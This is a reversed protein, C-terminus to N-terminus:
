KVLKPSVDEKVVDMFLLYNAQEMISAFNVNAGVLAKGLRRKLVSYAFGSLDNMIVYTNYANKWDRFDVDFSEMVQIFQEVLVEFRVYNMRNEFDTM